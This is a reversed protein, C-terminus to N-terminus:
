KNWCNQNRLYGDVKEFCKTLEMYQYNWYVNGIVNSLLMSNKNLGLTDFHGELVLVIKTVSGM